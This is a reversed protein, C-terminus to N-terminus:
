LTGDFVSYMSVLREGRKGIPDIRLNISGENNGPRVVVTRVVNEYETSRSTARVVEGNFRNILLCPLKM